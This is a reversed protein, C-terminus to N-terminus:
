LKSTRWGATPRWEFGQIVFKQKETKYRSSVSLLLLLVHNADWRTLDDESPTLWGTTSQEEHDYGSPTFGGQAVNVRDHELRNSPM